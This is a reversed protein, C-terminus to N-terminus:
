NLKFVIPIAFLTACVKGKDKGPTWKPMIGIIRLAENDLLPHVKEIIHPNSITGDTNIVFGVLVRGEIKKNRAEIPYQLNKSLWKMLEVMGGPFQPLEEVVRLDLTAETNEATNDKADEKESETTTNVDQQGDAEGEKEEVRGVAETVAEIKDIVQLKPAIKKPPATQAAAFYEDNKMLLEFDVDKIKDVDIDSDSNWSWSSSRYELATFCLSLVLILGLLFFTTRKSEIDVQQKKKIEM